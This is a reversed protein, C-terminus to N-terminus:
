FKLWCGEFSAERSSMRTREYARFCLFFAGVDGERLVNENGRPCMRLQRDLPSWIRRSIAVEGGRLVNENRTEAAGAPGGIGASRASIPRIGGARYGRRRVEAVGRGLM